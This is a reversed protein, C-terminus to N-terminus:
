AAKLSLFIVPFIKDSDIFIIVDKAAIPDSFKIRNVLNSFKLFQIDCFGGAALMETVPEQVSGHPKGFAGPVFGNIQFGM